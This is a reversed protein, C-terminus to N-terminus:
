AVLLPKELEAAHELSPLTLSALRLLLLLQEASPPRAVVGDRLGTYAIQSYAAARGPPCRIATNYRKRSESATYGNM